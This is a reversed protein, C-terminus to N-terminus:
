CVALVLFTAILGLPSKSVIGAANSWRTNLLLKALHMPVLSLFHEPEQVQLDDWGETIDYKSSCGVFRFELVGTLLGWRGCAKWWRSACLMQPQQKWVLMEHAQGVWTGRDANSLAALIQRLYAHWPKQSRLCSVRKQPLRFKAFHPIPLSVEKTEHNFSFSLGEARPCRVVPKLKWLM